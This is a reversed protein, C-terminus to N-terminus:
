LYVHDTQNLYGPGCQLFNTTRDPLAGASRGPASGASGSGSSSHHHHAVAPADLPDLELYASARLDFFFMRGRGSGCSLLHDLFTLSRVGASLCAGFDPAQLDHTFIHQQQQWKESLVARLSDKLWHLVPAQM